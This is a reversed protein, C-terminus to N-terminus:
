ALARTLVFELAQLAHDVPTDHGGDPRLLVLVDPNLKKVIAALRLVSDPPVSTDKGGACIALPMTFSEPFYEASRKKYEAPIEQKTGGFSQRIAEQFNEYELHNATGNCSVIGDVLNPHLAGFTLVASGGMSGGVLFVKDIRYQDRIRQLIQLVDAEAEPGMWSTKARYDPAVLIMDHRAAFIRAAAISGGTGTAYQWRDSGHGHLALLLHHSESADFCQPLRQVFRQESGDIAATFVVDEPPGLEVADDRIAMESENAAEPLATSPVASQSTM